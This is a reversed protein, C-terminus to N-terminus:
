KIQINKNEKLQCGAVTGGESLVKKIASKDPSEEIKVKRYQLPIREQDLIEVSTSKRYSITFLKTKAKDQRTAQMFGDLAAKMRDINKEAREKRAKLRAIENDINSIDDEYSKIIKCYSDIKEDAGISELTDHVTQEDIEEADLYEMLELAYGTIEYINM